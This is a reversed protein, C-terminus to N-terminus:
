GGEDVTWRQNADVMIHGGPGAADRIGALNRDDRGDAFGIKLKFATHGRAVMGAAVDGACDVDLASAYTNVSDAAAGDICRCLPIGQRRASLDWVAMDLGAIVQALPGFEGSQVMYPTLVRVMHDYLERPHHFPHGVILPAALTDVLHVRHIGGCEPFNCWIEGWGVVGDADEICVYAASRGNMSVYSSRVPVQAPCRYARAEIRVIRNPREARVGGRDNM